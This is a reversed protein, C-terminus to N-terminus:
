NGMRAVAPARREARVKVQEILALFAPVLVPRVVLTDLLVGLSLAFGLEQMGRLTGTMMSVFTAAMIVGCSTIIGGTRAVAIQLGRMPGHRGKEELVRTMLYINYDEGVAILIVFLFIPVKWDLGTFTDGYIAAFVLETAGITVYYTMLVTAILYLCVLPHRLLVLLVALVAIIVLREILKQDSATVRELDRTGSTTGTFYIEAGALPSEEDLRKESLDNEISDLLGVAERSFPDANLVLDFRAVSGELEEVPTVFTDKARSTNAALLRGGGGALLGGLGRTPEGFPQTLSRVQKVGEAKLLDDTIASVEERGEQTRFNADRQRVVVTVPGTEGAAFHRRLLRSGVVSPRDQDLENLLDYTIGVRWGEVALPAMLVISTALVAAPHRLVFRSVNEWFRMSGSSSVPPVFEHEHAPAVMGGAAETGALRLKSPWFVWRRAAQLLAPALTVSALLTIALCVAIAPGSDRFKGFDAFFMMSLGLITTLASGVLAHGVGGLAAALAESQSLGRELEEKYRAILFLCFDTGSGFLIVVIFIRTTTFVKFNWWDFGPLADAQTLLAVVSLGVSVSVGITAVPVVVLMPARYVLLLFVVVMAITTWETNRISEAASALMDGGVAASGTVGLQLGAPYDDEAREANVLELVRNLIRINEVAMFEGSMSLVILVAKGDASKLKEGIVRLDYTWVEQVGLEDAAATFREALRDAVALDVADLPRDDRAVVAIVQSNSTKQPFAERLLRDGRASTMDAPLYALNGDHAIAEWSPAAMRLGLAAAVWGLIVAWWWQAVWHGLRFFM